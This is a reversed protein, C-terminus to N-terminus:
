LSVCSTFKRTRPSQACLPIADFLATIRDVAFQNCTVADWPKRLHRLATPGVWLRACVYRLAAQSVRELSKGLQASILDDRTKSGPHCAAQGAMQAFSLKARDSEARAM